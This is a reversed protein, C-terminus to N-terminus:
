SKVEPQGKAKLVENLLSLDYLDKLDVPNLLGVDQAHKAGTRLSDAIPDDLFTLSKWADATQKADLPKGTLKNIGDSLVKQADQPNKNIWENSAVNGAILKKVVDRHKNLFDTSVLLNTIVFKGGPWLDREDVLVKGGLGVLRSAYPEPLWAGDIAGSKFADVTTSNDQPIVSVDGGGEKTTQYGHEKLWFRLAVDQTNGLQPTAIKKGKLDEPKTITPKVVFAVGGSASGAIVRVAKGKSQAYANVTPNPGVYTADIAGSFLAEVAAPGANFTKTELKVNGGLEQTFFGKEVGVIPTAHTLNPFYGLRLTTPGSSDGSASDGCAALGALSAILAVPLLVANVVWRGGRMRAQSM